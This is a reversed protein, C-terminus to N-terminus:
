VRGGESMVSRKGLRKHEDILHLASSEVAKATFGFREFLESGPASAGFRDIGLVTGEPGVYSDWGLTAGAEVALRLSVSSPLM